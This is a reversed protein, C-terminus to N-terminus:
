VAASAFVAGGTSADAADAGAPVGGTGFAEVCDVSLPPLAFSADGAGAGFGGAAGVVGPPVTM